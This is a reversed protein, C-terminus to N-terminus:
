FSGVNDGDFGDNIAFQLQGPTAAGYTGHFREGGFGPGFYGQGSDDRGDDLLEDGVRSVLASLSVAPLLAEGSDERTKCLGTPGYILNPRYHTDPRVAGEALVYVEDGGRLTLGTDQWSSKPMNPTDGAVHVELTPAAEPFTIDRQQPLLASIPADAAQGGTQIEAREKMGPLDEGGEWDLLQLEYPERHRLIRVIVHNDLVWFDTVHGARKKFWTDASTLQTLVLHNAAFTGAPVTVAEKGQHEVRVRYSPLTGQGHESTGWDCMTFEKSEGLSLAFRRILINCVAYPDPRSNLDFLAGPEIPFEKDDTEEGWHRIQVAKDEHFDLRAEFAPYRGTPKRSAAYHVPRHEADGIALATENFFPM